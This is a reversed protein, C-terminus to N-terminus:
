ASSGLIIIDYTMTGAGANTINILDATAATVVWGVAFDTILVHEGPNVSIMDSADAFPGLFGNAAAPSIGLAGNSSSQNRIALGKVDAFTITDGFDNTFGGSFDIDENASGALTRTDAVYLDVAGAGTGTIFNHQFTRMIKAVSDSIDTDKTFVFDAFVGFKGVLTDAM